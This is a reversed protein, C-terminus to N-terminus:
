ALVGIKVTTLSASAKGPYNDTVGFATNDTATLTLAGTSDIYVPTGAVTESTAGVVPGAWSGDFAVTASDTRQGVAGNPYTISYVGGLTATKTADGRPTITVFVESGSAIATGKATGSPVPRERTKSQTYAYVETLITAAM